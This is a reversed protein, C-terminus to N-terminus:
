IDESDTPQQNPDYPKIASEILYFNKTESTGYHYKDGENKYKFKVYTYKHNEITDLLITNKSIYEEFSIVEYITEDYVGNYSWKVKDGISFM